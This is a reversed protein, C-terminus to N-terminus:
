HTLSWIQFCESYNLGKQYRKWKQREWHLKILKPLFWNICIKFWAYNNEICLTFIMFKIHKLYVSCKFVPMFKAIFFHICCQHIFMVKDRKKKNWNEKSVCDFSHKFTFYIMTAKFFTALPQRKNCTHPHFSQFACLPISIKDHYPLLTFMNRYHMFYM